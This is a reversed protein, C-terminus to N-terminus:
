GGTGARRVLDKFGYTQADRRLEALTQDGREARVEIEGLALRAELAASVLGSREADAIAERLDRVAGDVDGTAADLRALPAALLLAMERDQTTRVLERSREGAERAERTRGERLLAEALVALAQAELWPSSRPAAWAAIARAADAAEGPRDASLMLRALELRTVASRSADGAEESKRLSALLSAGAAPLDGAARQAQGLEHLAWAEFVHAGTERALRLLAESLARAQAVDGSQLALRSRAGLLLGSAMKDGARREAAVAQELRRRAMTLNGLRALTDASSALVSTALAPRKYDLLLHLAAELQRDAGAIKGQWALISALVELARAEDGRNGVERAAAVAEEASRRAADVNGQRLLIPAMGTLARGQMLRDGVEVYATRAEELLRLAEDLEGRVLHLTALTYLQAAIGVASGLQRAIDLSQQHRLEAEDLEGLSQLAKGLNSLAMGTTWPQGVERALEEAERFRTVAEQPRGAELQAVGQWILARALAQREGSRRAKSAAAEAVRALVALDGIRSAARAEELDIRPDGEGVPSQRMDALVELAEGSRGANILATALQLGHDIEDPFFTWLSRYLEAAQPWQKAAAYFRAEIALREERPLSRSLDLALRAERLARADDGTEYSVRALLSHIAPSGPEIEAARELLVRAGAFDFSRLRELGQATLRAAEPVSPHLAQAAQSQSRSLEGLGLVQRLQMGVRSVIELLHSEHGVESLTAVLTGEPLELVRVDLRIQRSGERDLILYSGVVVLDAGLITQLRERDEERLSETDPISLSQRIRMVNDGSILRAQGGASLETTLMEALAVGLWATQPNGGLDKLGLVALAPRQGARAPAAATEPPGQPMPVGPSGLLLAFIELLLLLAGGRLTLGTRRMRPPPAPPERSIEGTEELIDPAAVVEPEEPKEPEPEEPEKPAAAAAPFSRAAPPPELHILPYVGSADNSIEKVEAIFTYGRGPVTLIYRRDGARDGLAKRLSSVNQTLNAETVYTDPWVRRFLEEKGVVEGRRELLVVLLSFSKSTVAIPEGDRLLRRRVPDVRFEGFEYLRREGPAPVLEAREM